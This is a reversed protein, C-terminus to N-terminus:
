LRGPIKKVVVRRGPSVSDHGGALGGGFEPGFELSGAGFQLQQIAELAHPRSSLGHAAAVFQGLHRRENEQLELVEPDLQPPGAEPDEVGAGVAAFDPEGTGRALHLRTVAEAQGLHVFV